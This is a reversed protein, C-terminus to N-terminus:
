FYNYFIQEFCKIRYVKYKMDQMKVDQIEASGDTSSHISGHLVPSPRYVRKCFPTSLPERKTRTLSDRPMVIDGLHKDAVGGRAGCYVSDRICM